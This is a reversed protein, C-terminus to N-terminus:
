RAVTVCTATLGGARAFSATMKYLGTKAPTGVTVYVGSKMDTVALPLPVCSPCSPSGSFTTYGNFQNHQHPLTAFYFTRIFGGSSAVAPIARAVVIDGGDSRLNSYGDRSTISFSCVVGSTALSLGEGTVTSLAGCPVNPVVTISVPTGILGSQYFVNSATLSLAASSPNRIEFAFVSDAAADSSVEVVYEYFNNAQLSITGSSVQSAGSYTRQNIVVVYDITVFLGENHTM